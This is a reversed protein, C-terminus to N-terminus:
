LFTRKYKSGITSDLDYDLARRLLGAAMWRSPETVKTGIMNQPHMACYTIPHTNM